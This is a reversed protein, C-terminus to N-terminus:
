RKGAKSARTEAWQASPGAFIVVAVGVAYSFALVACHRSDLDIVVDDGSFRATPFAGRLQHSTQWQGEELEATLARVAERLAAAGGRALELLDSRGVLKM